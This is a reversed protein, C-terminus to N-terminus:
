NITLTLFTAKMGCALTLTKRLMYIVSKLSIKQIAPLQDFPVEVGMDGRAIIVGDAIELISDLNEIGSGNEIKAIIQVKEGGNVNLLKRLKKVDDQNRLLHLQLLTLIRNSVLSLIM